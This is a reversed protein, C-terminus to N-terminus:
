ENDSRHHRNPTLVGDTLPSLPVFYFAKLENGDSDKKRKQVVWDDYFYKTTLQAVREFFVLPLIAFFIDCLGQGSRVIDAIFQTLGAHPVGHPGTYKNAWSPEWKIDEQEKTLEVWPAHVPCILELEKKWENQVTRSFFEDIPQISSSRDIFPVFSCHVLIDTQAGV